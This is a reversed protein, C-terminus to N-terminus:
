IHRSNKLVQMFHCIPFGVVNYYDGKIGKIYAAFAGQIGYAGAKDMSEGMAVYNKIEDEEMPVVEVETKEHFVQTEIEGNRKHLLTVGTYVSHFRGQISRIMQVAAEENVPKGLIRGELVVVTDAGVVICDETQRGAVDIAKRMSLQEVTKAPEIECVDEEVASPVVEFSIGAQELIERRRPSGSALIIKEEM